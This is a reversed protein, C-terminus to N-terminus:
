RGTAAPTLGGTTGVRALDNLTPMYVILGHTPTNKSYGAVLQDNYNQPSFDLPGKPDAGVLLLDADDMTLKGFRLTGGRFYMYNSASRDPPAVGHRGPDVDGFYEVLRGKDITVNTLRGRIRPPPLLREPDLLLDNGDITIPSGPKLTIMRALTLGFFDLMRKPFVGAAKMATPHLRIKGDKTATVTADMTFPIGIGKRLTGTQRLTGNEITLKLHTLPAGPYAFVYNNMLNTLSEATMSVRAADIDLVYSDLDDFIPPKGSLRSLMRGSLDEIRLEIGRGVHLNVNRMRTAVPVASPQTGVAGDALVLASAALLSASTLAVRRRWSSM